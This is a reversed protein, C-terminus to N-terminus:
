GVGHPAAKLKMDDDDDDDKIDVPEPLEKALNM